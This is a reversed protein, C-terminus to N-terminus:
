SVRVKFIYGYGEQAESTTLLGNQYTKSPYNELFVASTLLIQLLIDTMQISELFLGFLISINQLRKLPDILSSEDGSDKGDINLFSGRRSARRSTSGRRSPAESGSDSDKGSVDPTNLMLSKRRSHSSRRGSSYVKDPLDLMESALKEADKSDNIDVAMGTMDM